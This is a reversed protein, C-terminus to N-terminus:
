ECGLRGFSPTAQKSALTESEHRRDVGEDTFVEATQDGNPGRDPPFEFGYGVDEGKQASVNRSGPTINYRCRISRQIAKTSTLLDNIRGDNRMAAPLAFLLTIMGFLQPSCTLMSQPTSRERNFGSGRVRTITVKRKRGSAFCVIIYIFERDGPWAPLINITQPLKAEAYAM